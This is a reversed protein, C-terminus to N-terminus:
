TDAIRAFIPAAFRASAAASYATDVEAGVDADAYTEVDAHSSAQAPHSADAGEELRENTVCTRSDRSEAYM